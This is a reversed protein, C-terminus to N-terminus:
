PSVWHYKEIVKGDSDLSISWAEIDLFLRNEFWLRKACPPKCSESTYRTFEESPGDMASPLGFRNVVVDYTDGEKIASFADERAKKVVLGSAGYAVFLLAIVGVSIKVASSRM